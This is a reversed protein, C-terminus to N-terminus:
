DHRTDSCWPRGERRRDARFGRARRATELELRAKELSEKHIKDTVVRNRLVKIEAETRSAKDITTWDEFIQKSKNNCKRSLIGGGNPSCGVALVSLDFPARVMM